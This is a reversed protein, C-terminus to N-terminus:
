IHILSLIPINFPEFNKDINWKSTMHFDNIMTPIIFNLLEKNEFVEKPLMNYSRVFEIFEEITINDMNPRPIEIEPPNWGSLFLHEPGKAGIINLQNSLEFSILAGMCHGFFIYKKDSNEMIVKALNKSLIKLDDCLKKNSGIKHGPYRIAVLEIKSSLENIWPYYLELMSGAYPFCFLRVEANPNPKPISFWSSPSDALNGNSTRIRM